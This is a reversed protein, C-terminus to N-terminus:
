QKEGENENEGIQDIPIDRHLPDDACQDCPDNKLKQNNLRQFSVKGIANVIIVSIVSFLILYAFNFVYFDIPTDASSIADRQIHEYRAVASKLGPVFNSAIALIHRKRLADAAALLICGALLEALVNQSLGEIYSM